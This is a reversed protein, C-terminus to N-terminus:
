TVAIDNSDHLVYEIGNYMCKVLIRRFYNINDDDLLRM